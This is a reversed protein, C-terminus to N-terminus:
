KRVLLQYNGAVVIPIFNERMYSVLPLSGLDQHAPNWTEAIKPNYIMCAHPHKSLASVVTRQQENSFYVTWADSNMGTVPPTQSWFNFSPLGPLAEFADCSRRIANSIVEIPEKTEWEVHLRHSGPLELAPLASYNRYRHWCIAANFATILVLACAALTTRRLGPLWSAFIEAGAVWELSDGACVVVVVSFLTQMFEAQSGYVPYGYLSHMVTLACLVVRPFIPDAEFQKPRLLVLWAFSGAAPVLDIRLPIFLIGAASFVLKVVALRRSDVGGNSSWDRLLAIATLAGLSAWLIWYASFKPPVYWNPDHAFVRSPLYVLSDAVAGLSVRTMTLACCTVGIIVAYGSALFALDKSSAKADPPVRFLIIVAAAISATACVCYKEAWLADLHTRMVLTPLAISVAGAVYLLLRYTRHSSLQSLVALALAAGVYIGINIKILLLAGGLLGLTFMLTNRSAKIRAWLPCAALAILLLLTLEQPHGPEVRFFGVTMSVVTLAVAAFVVSRTLRLVIWGSLVSCLVWPIISSMRTIDHTVPTSTIRRIFANYFYYIPGYVSFVEDYIRMGSLYQKVTLMLTGEDDYTTFGTLMTFYAQIAVLLGLIATCTMRRSFSFTGPVRRSDLPDIKQRSCVDARIM